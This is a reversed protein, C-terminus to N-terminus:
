RACRGGIAYYKALPNHPVATDPMPVHAEWSGDWFYAMTGTAPTWDSTWEIVLGALDAHGFKGNGDPFRGPPAIYVSYDNDIRQSPSWWNYEHNAFRSADPPTGAVEASVFATTGFAQPAPANGWPYL